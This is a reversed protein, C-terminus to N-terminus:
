KLESTRKKPLKNTKKQIKNKAPTEDKVTSSNENFTTSRKSNLIHSVGPEKNDSISIFDTVQESKATCNSDVLTTSQIDDTETEEIVTSDSFLSNDNYARQGIILIIILNIFRNERLERGTPFPKYLNFIHQEHKSEVYFM